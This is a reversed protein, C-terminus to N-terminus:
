IEDMKIFYKLFRDMTNKDATTIRIYKKLLEHGYTKILIKEKFLSEKIENVLKNPKIFVYNGNGSFYKYGNKKLESIIYQKGAAETQILDHILTPHKLIETALMIGVCNIAYTPRARNILDAFYPNSVAYGIRCGAISCLKSFTRLLIVNDYMGVMDVLTGKYFYHYAEDIIVIAKVLQAKKIINEVEQRSFVTGIPNNPNLIVVLKTDQHIAEYFKDYSVTFDKKYEIMTHQMGYMKAYVSYMEFTPYVTVISKGSEAFVEFITKIAEDSGNTIAIKEETINVTSQENNLHKSIEYLLEKTEPYMALFSASLKNLVSKVFYEPLGHPNENMDLRLFEGRGQFPNVRYLDKIQKNINYLQYM